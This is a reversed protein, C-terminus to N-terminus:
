ERVPARLAQVERQTLPRLGGPPLDSLSLPGFHTRSLTVVPHGLSEFMVRVQRNRGEHITLDVITGERRTAVIRLQAGAARFEDTRVGALLAKVDDPALKGRVTARYTKEVGFRPHTLRHALDGDDTLLLLGSTDYDLRGVPVVRPMTKPLLDAITRRGEPDRMTTMVALPKNLMVYTFERAPQVRKGDVEVVSDDAVTTGLERVMTGDIRVKGAVILEEAARRSAVGAHALYKNLRM